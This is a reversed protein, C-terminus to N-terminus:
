EPIKGKTIGVRRLAESNVWVAHADVRTLSVPIDPRWQDLLRRNPKSSWLNDDWGFGLLWDGRIHHTEPNVKLIDDPSEMEALNLRQAFEGTAPWHVHSDYCAEIRM